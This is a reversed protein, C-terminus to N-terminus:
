PGIPIQTTIILMIAATRNIPLKYKNTYLSAPPAASTGPPRGPPLLPRGSPPLWPAALLSGLSDSSTIKVKEPVDWASDYTKFSNRAPPPLGSPGM